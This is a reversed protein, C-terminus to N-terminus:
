KSPSVNRRLNIELNKYQLPQTFGQNTNKFNPKCWIIKKRVEAYESIDLACATSPLGSLMIVVYLAHYHVLHYEM